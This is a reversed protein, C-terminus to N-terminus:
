LISMIRDAEELTYVVRYYTPSKYNGGDAEEDVAEEDVTAVKTGRSRQREPKPSANTSTSTLPLVVHTVDFDNDDQESTGRTFCCVGNGDKLSKVVDTWKAEFTYLPPGYGMITNKHGVVRVVFIMKDLVYALVVASEWKRFLKSSDIKDFTDKDFYLDNKLKVNNTNHKLNNSIKNYVLDSTHRGNSYFAHLMTRYNKPTSIWEKYQQLIQTCWVVFEERYIPTCCYRFGSKKPECALMLAYM